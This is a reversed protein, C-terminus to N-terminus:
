ILTFTLVMMRLIKLMKETTRNTRILVIAMVGVLVGESLIFIAYPLANFCLFLV